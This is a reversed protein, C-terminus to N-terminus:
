ERRRKYGRNRFITSIVMKGDEDEKERCPYCLDFYDLMSMQIKNKKLLNYSSSSKSPGSGSSGKIPTVGVVQEIWDLIGKGQCKPCIDRHISYRKIVESDETWGVGNCRDCEIMEIEYDDNIM